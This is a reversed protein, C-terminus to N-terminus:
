QDPEWLDEISYSGLQDQETWEKFISWAESEQAKIFRVIYASEILNDIEMNYRIRWVNDNNVSGFMMKINAWLFAQTTKM